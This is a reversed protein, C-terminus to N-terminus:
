NKRIQPHTVEKQGIDCEGWSSSSNTEIKLTKNICELKLSTPAQFTGSGGIPHLAQMVSIITEPYLPRLHICPRFTFLVCGSLEDSELSEQCICFHVSEPLQCLWPSETLISELFERTWPNPSQAKVALPGPEIGTQSVSIRCATHCSWFLLWITKVLVWLIYIYISM